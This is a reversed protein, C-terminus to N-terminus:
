QQQVQLTTPGAIGINCKNGIKDVENMEVVNMEGETEEMNQSCKDGIQTPLIKQKENGDKARGWLVIYLGSFVVVMGVVSGIHVDVHLAIPELIAVLVTSSPSFAATYLPGKEKLSWSQLFFSLASGFVGSYAYTFLEFNSNATWAISKNIILALIASQLAGMGLMM